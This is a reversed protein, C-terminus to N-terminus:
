LDLLVKNHTLINITSYKYDKDDTILTIQNQRCVEQIFEDNIDIPVSYYNSLLNEFDFNCFNTNIPKADKLIRKVEIVIGEVDKKYLHTDRYDKFNIYGNEECWVDYNFRIYKNIFESLVLIDVFISSGSNIIENYSNVYLMTRPNNQPIQPGYIFLWINTDFLLKDSSSFSHTRMSRAVM